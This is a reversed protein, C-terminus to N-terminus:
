QSVTWRHHAVCRPQCGRRVCCKASCRARWTAGGGGADEAQCRGGTDEAAGEAGGNGENYGQRSCATTMRIGVAHLQSYHMKLDEISWAGTEPTDDEESRAANVNRMMQHHQGQTKWQMGDGEQTCLHGDHLAAPADGGCSRSGDDAGTELEGPREQADHKRPTGVVTEPATPVRAIECVTAAQEASKDLRANLRRRIAALREAATATGIEPAAQAKRKEVRQAHLQLSVALHANRAALRQRARDLPSLKRTGPSTARGRIGPPEADDDATAPHGLTGDIGARTSAATPEQHPLYLWAPTRM